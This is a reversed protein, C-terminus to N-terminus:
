TRTWQKTLISSSSLASGTVLNVYFAVHRRTLAGGLGFLRWHETRSCPTWNGTCMQQTCRAILAGTLTVSGILSMELGSWMM